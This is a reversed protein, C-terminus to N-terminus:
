WIAGAATILVGGCRCFLVMGSRVEFIWRCANAAVSINQSIHNAAAAAVQLLVEKIEDRSPKGNCKLLADAGHLRRQILPTRGEGMAIPATVDIPLAARYRWLGPAATDIEYRGIGPLPTLLLPAKGDGCWRPVDLPYTRGSRPDLYAATRDM